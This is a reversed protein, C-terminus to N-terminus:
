PLMEWIIRLGDDFIKKTKDYQELYRKQQPWEETFLFQTMLLYQIGESRINQLFEERCIKKERDAQGWWDWTVHLPQKRIGNGQLPVPLHQLKRGFANAYVM